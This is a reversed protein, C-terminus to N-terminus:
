KTEATKKAAMIQAIVEDNLSKVDISDFTDNGGSVRISTAPKGFARDNFEKIASIRATAPTDKAAIVKMLEFFVHAANQRYLEAIEVKNGVYDKVYQPKNGGKPNGSQGKQFRGKIVKTDPPTDEM